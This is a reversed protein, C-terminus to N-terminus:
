QLRFPFLHYLLAFLFPRCFILLLRLHFSVSRSLKDFLERLNIELLHSQIFADDIKNIYKHNIYTIFCEYIWLAFNFNSGGTTIIITTTNNRRFQIRDKINIIMTTYYFVLTLLLPIKLYSISISVLIHIVNAFVMPLSIWDQSM